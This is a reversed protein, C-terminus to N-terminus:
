ISSDHYKLESQRSQKGSVTIETPRKHKRNKRGTQNAGTLDLTAIKKVIRIPVQEFHTKLKGM